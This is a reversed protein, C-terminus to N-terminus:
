FHLSFDPDQEQDSSLQTYVAGQQHPLVQLQAAPCMERRTEQVDAVEKCTTKFPVRSVKDELKTRQQSQGRCSITLFCFAFLTIIESFTDSFFLFIFGYFWAVPCKSLNAGCRRTKRLIFRCCQLAENNDCIEGKDFLLSRCYKHFSPVLRSPRIGAAHVTQPQDMSRSHPLLKRKIELNKWKWLLGSSSLINGWVTM